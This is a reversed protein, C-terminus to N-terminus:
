VEDIVYNDCPFFLYMYSEEGITVWIEYADSTSDYEIEKITAGRSPIIEDLAVSINHLHGEPTNNTKFVTYDHMDRCLLMYYKDAKKCMFVKIKNKGKEIKSKSLAPLLKIRNKNYDYLSGLGVKAM